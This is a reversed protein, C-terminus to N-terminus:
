SLASWAQHAPSQQRPGRQLPMETVADRYRDSRLPCETVAEKYSGSQSPMETVVLRYRGTDRSGVGLDWRVRCWGTGMGYGVGGWGWGDWTMESMGGFGCTGVRGHWGISGQGEM